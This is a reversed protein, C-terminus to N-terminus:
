RCSIIGDGENFVQVGKVSPNVGLVILPSYLVAPCWIGERIWFVWGGERHFVHAPLHDPVCWPLSRLRPDDLLTCGFTGWETSLMMNVHHQITGVRQFVDVMMGM